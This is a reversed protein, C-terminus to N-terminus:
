WGGYYHGAGDYYFGDQQFDKLNHLVYYGWQCGAKTFLAEGTNWIYTLQEEGDYQVYPSIPDLASEEPWIMNGSMRTKIIQLDSNTFSRSTNIEYRNTSVNWSAPRIVLAVESQANYTSMTTNKSQVYYAGDSWDGTKPFVTNAAIESNTAPYRQGWWSFEPSPSYATVYVEMTSYDKVGGTEKFRTAAHLYTHVFLNLTFADHFLRDGTYRNRVYATMLVPGARHDYPRYSPAQGYCLVGSNISWTCTSAAVTSPSASFCATLAPDLENEEARSGDDDIFGTLGVCEASATVPGIQCYGSYTIDALADKKSIMCGFDHIDGKNPVDTSWQAWAQFPNVSLVPALRSDVWQCNAASFVVRSLERGGVSPYQRLSFAHIDFDLIGGSASTSCAIRDNGPFSPVVQLLEQYLEYQLTTGIATDAGPASLSLSAQDDARVYRLIPASGSLGDSGTKMPSGDPNAYFLIPITSGNLQLVPASVRLDISGSQGNSATATITVTDDAGGLTEIYVNKGSLSGLRAHSGGSAIEWSITAEADDLDSVLLLNRQAALSPEEDNLWSLTLPRMASFHLTNSTIRGDISRIQVTHLDGGAGSRAQLTLRDNSATYTWDAAAAIVGSSGNAPEGDLYLTYGYPWDTLGKRGHVFSGGGDTSYNLYFSAARDHPIYQADSAVPTSSDSFPSIVLRRNDLFSSTNVRWAGEWMGDWTLSLAAAYYRDGIVDFNGTEDEGLYVRYTMDGSVGDASGFKRATYELYTSLSERGSAPSKGKQTSSSIGTGQRNEPLYLVIEPSEMSRGDSLTFDHWDTESSYIEDPSIARRDSEQAFPRVVRAVQSLQLRGGELASGDTAGELMASKDITIVLKALLRRVPIDVENTANKGIAATALRKYGAMPLGSSGLSAFNDPLPHVYEEPHIVGETVPIENLVNGMNVFAYIDYFTAGNAHVTLDRLGSTGSASYASEWFGDSGVVVVLVSRVGSDFGSQPLVSKAAFETTQDHFRIALRTQRSDNLENQQACSLFLTCLSLIIINRYHHM